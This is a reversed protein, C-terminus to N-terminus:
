PVKASYWWSLFHVGIDIIGVTIRWKPFRFRYSSCWTLWLILMYSKVKTRSQLVYCECKINPTAPSLRSDIAFIRYIQQHCDVTMLLYETFKSTVTSQWNCINPLNAPSLRSYIAFIRYVQQHCDIYIAFLRYIQQHCVVTFLLYDTFKSTVSSQLYCIIPLNAPSLRSYIVFLRYIQQHCDVTFAFIRYIQQHCEVTFLIYDTFKSTVSVFETQDLNIYSSIHLVHLAESFNYQSVKKARLVWAKKMRVTFVRILSPPHRPQSESWVPRIGLSSRSKAPRVTMKNTKDHSDLQTALSRLKKMRVTFVPWVPRISTQTKAPRVTM